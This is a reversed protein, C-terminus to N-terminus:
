VLHHPRQDHRAPPRALYKMTLFSLHRHNYDGLVHPRGFWHDGLVHKVTCEENDFVTSDLWTETVALIVANTNVALIDLEEMKHLISRANLHVFHPGTKKFCCLDNSIESILSLNPKRIM